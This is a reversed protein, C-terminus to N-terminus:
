AIVCSWISKASRNSQPTTCNARTLIRRAARTILSKTIDWNARTGVGRCACIGRGVTRVFSRASHASNSLGAAVGDDAFLVAAVDPTDPVMTFVIDAQEAVAKASTCLTAAALDPHVKSRTHVFLTHGAKLLHGAMPAGMIGLGIFGLKLSTNTM